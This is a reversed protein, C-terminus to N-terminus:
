GGGPLPGRGASRLLRGPNRPQAAIYPFKAAGLAAFEWSASDRLSSNPSQRTRRVWNGHRLAACLRTHAKAAIGAAGPVTSSPTSFVLPRTLSKAAARWAPASRQVAAGRRLPRQQPLGGALHAGTGGASVANTIFTAGPSSREAALHVCGPWGRQAIGAEARALFDEDRHSGRASWTLQLRPSRPPSRLVLAGADAAPRGRPVGRASLQVFGAPLLGAERVRGARADGHVAVDGALAPTLRRVRGAHVRGREGRGARTGVPLP